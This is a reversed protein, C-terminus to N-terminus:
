RASRGRILRTVASGGYVLAALVVAPELVFLATGAALSLADGMHDQGILFTHEGLGRGRITNSWAGLLRTAHFYEARDGLVSDVAVVAAMGLPLLKLVLTGPGNSRGGRATRTPQMLTTSMPEEEARPSAELTFARRIQPKCPPSLANFL